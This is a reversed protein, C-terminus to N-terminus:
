RLSDVLSAHAQSTEQTVAQMQQVDSRTSVMEAELSAIRHVASDARQEHYNSREELQQLELRTHGREEEAQRTISQMHELQAM